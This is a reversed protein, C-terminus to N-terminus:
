FSCRDMGRVEWGERIEGPPAGLLGPLSLLPAFCLNLILSKVPLVTWVNVGTYASESTSAKSM